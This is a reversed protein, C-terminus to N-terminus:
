IGEEDIDITEVDVEKRKLAAEEQKQKLEAVHRKSKNWDDDTMFMTVHNMRNTTLGVGRALPKAFGDEVKRFGHTCAYVAKHWLQIRRPVEATETEGEKPQLDWYYYKPVPVVKRFAWELPDLDEAEMDITHRQSLLDLFEEPSSYVKPENTSPPDHAQDTKTELPDATSM